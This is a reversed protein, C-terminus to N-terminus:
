GGTGRAAVERRVLGGVGGLRAAARAPDGTRTPQDVEFDHGTLGCEEEIVHAVRYALEMVALAEAGAYRYPVEIDASDGYYSCHVTGLPGQYWFGLSYPFEEPEVPAIERGVRLLVREWADREQGSLRLPELEADPGMGAVQRELAERASGEGPGVQVLSIDYTM